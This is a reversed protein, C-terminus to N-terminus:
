RRESKSETQSTHPWGGHDEIVADIDGLVGATNEEVAARQRAIWDRLDSYALSELTRPGESGSAALCHYNVLASLGGPLGDSIHWVM